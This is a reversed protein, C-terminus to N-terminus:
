ALACDAVAVHCFSVVKSNRWSLLFGRPRKLCESWISWVPTTFIKCFRFRTKSHPKKNPPSGSRKLSRYNNIPFNHTIRTNPRTRRRLRFVCQCWFSLKSRWVKGDQSFPPNNYFTDIKTISSEFLDFNNTKSCHFFRWEIRSIWEMVMAAIPSKLYCYM